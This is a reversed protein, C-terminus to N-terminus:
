DKWFKWTRFHVRWTLSAWGVQALFMAEAVVLIETLTRKGSISYFAFLLAPVHIFYIM